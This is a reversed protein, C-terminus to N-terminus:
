SMRGHSDILSWPFSCVFVVIFLLSALNLIWTIEPSSFPILQFLEEKTM